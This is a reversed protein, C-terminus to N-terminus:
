SLCEMKKQLTTQLDIGGHEEILEEMLEVPVYGGVSSTTETNESMYKEGDIPQSPYGWEVLKWDIGFTRIGNESRCYSGNHIQISINFGDKCFVRPLYFPKTNYTKEMSMQTCEDANGGLGYIIGFSMANIYETLTM